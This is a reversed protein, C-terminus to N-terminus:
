LWSCLRLCSIDASKSGSLILSMVSRLRMPIPGIHWYEDLSPTAVSQCMAWIPPTAMPPVPRIMASAVATVGSPRIVGPQAPSQFSACTAAMAGTFANAFDQPATIPTCIPCAPRLADAARGHSPPVCKGSSLPPQGITPGVSSTNSLSPVRNFLAGDAMDMASIWAM